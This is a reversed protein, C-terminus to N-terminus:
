SWPNATGGVKEDILTWGDPLGTTATGNRAFPPGSVFAVMYDGVDLNQPIPIATGNGALLVEPPEVPDPPTATGGSGSAPRLAFTFAAYTATGSGEDIPFVPTGSSGPVDIRKTLVHIGTFF